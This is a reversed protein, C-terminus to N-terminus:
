NTIQLQFDGKARKQGRIVCIKVLKKLDKFESDV